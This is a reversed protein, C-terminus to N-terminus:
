GKRATEVAAEFKGRDSLITMKQFGSLHKAVNVTVQMFKSSLLLTIRVRDKHAQMWRTWAERVATTVGESGFADILVELSGHRGLETGLTDLVEDTLAADYGTYVVLTAGPRLRSLTAESSRTSIRVTGDPLTERSM